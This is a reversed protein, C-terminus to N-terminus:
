HSSRDTLPCRRLQYTAGADAPQEIGPAANDIVVDILSVSNRHDPLAQNFGNSGGTGGTARCAVAAGGAFHAAGHGIQQAGGVRSLQIM